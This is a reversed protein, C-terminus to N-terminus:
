GYAAGLREALRCTARTSCPAVGLRQEVKIHREWLVRGVARQLREVRGGHYRRDGYKLLSSPFSTESKWCVIESEDVRLCKKTAPGNADTIANAVVTKPAIADLRRTRGSRVVARM